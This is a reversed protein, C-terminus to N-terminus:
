PRRQWTLAKLPELDTGWEHPFGRAALLDEVRQELEQEFEPRGCGLLELLARELFGPEWGQAEEIAHLEPALRDHYPPWRRELGFLTRILYLASEAAHLRGGLADGARWAKLSRVWSNLYSDYAEAVGNWSAEGGGAAIRELVRGIEGTDDVLVRADAYTATWWGPEEAHRRLRGISQHVIDLKPAGPAERREQLEGREQRAAYADETVVRILDYDSGPSEVGSARSGHLILGLSAPDSRVEAALDVLVDAPPV